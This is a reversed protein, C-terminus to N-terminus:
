QIVRTVVDTGTLEAPTWVGGGGQDTDKFDIAVDGSAFNALCMGENTWHHEYPVRILIRRAGEPIKVTIALQDAM